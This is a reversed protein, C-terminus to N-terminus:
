PPTPSPLTEILGTGPGNACGSTSTGDFYDQLWIRSGDPFQILLWIIPTGTGTNGFFFSTDALRFNTLALRDPSGGSDVIFDVGSAPGGPGYGDYTDAGGLDFVVNDSSNMSVPDNGPGV